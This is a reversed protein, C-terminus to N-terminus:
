EWVFAGPYRDRNKGRNKNIKSAKISLFFLLSSISQNISPITTYHHRMQTLRFFTPNKKKKIELNHKHEVM